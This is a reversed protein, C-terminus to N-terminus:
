FVESNGIRYKLKLRKLSFLDLNLLSAKEKPNLKGVSELYPILSNIKKIHTKQLKKLNIEESNRKPQSLRINVEKLGEIHDILAIKSKSVNNYRRSIM